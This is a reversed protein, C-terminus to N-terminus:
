RTDKLRLTDLFGILMAIALAVFLYQMETFFLLLSGSLPGLIYAMPRLARFSSIIGTDTDNVKKFFYIESMVEVMAAGIRTIFLLLAWLAFDKATIFALPFTAGAMLLLGLIMFEKEGYRKDAFHGLPWQLVVFPILIISFLLGIEGFSFGIYKVLYIPIYITMWAYFFQLLFAVHFIASMDKNRKLANWMHRPTFPAYHPDAFSHVHKRTLFIFPVLVLGAYVYLDSIGSLGVLGGALAPALVYAINGATLVASRGDGTGEESVTAGELLIDMLYFLPVASALTLAFLLLIFELQSSFGIAVFLLAETIASGLLVRYAGFEALLRPIVFYLGLSIFAGIIYIIGLWADPVGHFTLFSSNFFTVLAVHLSLIFSLVYVMHASKTM